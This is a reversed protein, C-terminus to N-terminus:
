HECGGEPYTHSDRLCLTPIAKSVATKQSQLTFTPPLHLSTSGSSGHTLNKGCPLSSASFHLPMHKPPSCVFCYRLELMHYISSSSHIAWGGQAEAEEETFPVTVFACKTSSNSNHLGPLITWLASIYPPHGLNVSLLHQDCGKGKCLEKKPGKLSVSCKSALSSPPALFATHNTHM